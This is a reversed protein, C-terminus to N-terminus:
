SLREALEELKRALDVDTPTVGGADHTTLDITVRNWAKSWEPHHNMAEIVIASTAMFGFAHVFDAFEYERHLKGRVIQWGPLAALAERIQREGLLDRKGMNNDWWRCGEGYVPILAGNVDAAEDSALWGVLAAITESRVWKSTDASPMAARNAPTDIVSPLVANATIGLSSVEAATCRVLAHLAAKSACYAGLGAAPELGAKSGVAIIRGRRAEIMPPLAARFMRNATTLNLELVRRWTEEDTEAVTGGSAFGGVLHALVDLRGATELVKEVARHAGEETALDAEVRIIGRAPAAHQSWDRAVAM